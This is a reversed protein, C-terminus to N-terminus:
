GLSELFRLLVAIDNRCSRGLVIIERTNGLSGALAETGIRIIYM